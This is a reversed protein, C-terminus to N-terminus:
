QLDENKGGQGSGLNYREQLQELVNNADSHLSRSTHRWSRPVERGFALARATGASVVYQQIKVQDQEEESERQAESIEHHISSSGGSDDVGKTVYDSEPDGVAGDMNAPRPRIFLDAGDDDDDDDDSFAPDRRNEDYGVNQDEERATTVSLQRPTQSM